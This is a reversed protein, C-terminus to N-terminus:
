SNCITRNDRLIKCLLIIDIKKMDPTDWWALLGGCEMFCCSNKGYEFQIGELIHLWYDCCFLAEVRSSCVFQKPDVAERGMSNDFYERVIVKSFPLRWNQMRIPFCRRNACYVGVSSIGCTWDAWPDSYYASALSIHVFRQEPQSVWVGGCRIFFFFLHVLPVYKIYVRQASWLLDLRTNISSRACRGVNNWIIIYM